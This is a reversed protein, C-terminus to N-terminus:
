GVGSLLFYQLWPTCVHGEILCNQKQEEDLTAKLASTCECNASIMEMDDVELASQTYNLIRQGIQPTYRECVRM